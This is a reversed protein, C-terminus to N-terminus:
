ANPIRDVQASVAAFAEEVASLAAELDARIGEVAGADRISGLNIVVNREMVRAAARLLIAGSALDSALKRSCHPAFDRLAALARACRRVGELPVCAAGLAAERMAASRAKREEDTGKPMKLATDFRNYAEADRDIMEAFERRFADMAAGDRDSFRLAMAGLAAGAAAALAGASGGGPTPTRAALVDLFEGIRLDRLMRGITAPDCVIYDFQEEFRVRVEYPHWYATLYCANGLRARARQSLRKVRDKTSGRESLGERLVMVACAFLSPFPGIFLPKFQFALVEWFPPTIESAYSTHSASM